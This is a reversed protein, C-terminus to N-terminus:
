VLSHGYFAMGRAMWPGDGPTPMATTTSPRTGPRMAKGGYSHSSTRPRNLTALSMTPSGARGTLDLWLCVYRGSPKDWGIFVTSEYEPTGSERTERSVEDFRLYQHGLVWQATLDHTIENGAIMGQMVWDGVFRDLLEDEFPPDDAHAAAALFLLWLWCVRRTFSM